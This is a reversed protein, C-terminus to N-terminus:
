RRNRRKSGAARRKLRYQKPTSKPTLARRVESWTMGGRCTPATEIIPDYSPLRMWLPPPLDPNMPIHGMRESEGPGYGFTDNFYKWRHLASQKEAWIDVLERMRGRPEADAFTLLRPPDPMGWCRSCPGVEVNTGHGCCVAGTSM